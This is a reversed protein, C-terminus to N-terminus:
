KDNQHNVVDVLIAIVLNLITISCIAIFSFFYIWSWWYIAQMPLMVNEWSSLTLVQFLTILSIGLDAWREPDDEGFLISGMTAYIYLIIFLLLSVYFVRKISALIAEIIKKLEPVVSILRLVRFVRLLRLLLFSSNNPIPILSILVISTDFINWGSKFFDLKKPEGVFRIIIEIVFFVTISYDLYNIAQKTLESVDYTTVGITIANLIIILIVVFQFIRGEKLKFLFKNM